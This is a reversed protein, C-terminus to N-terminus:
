EGQLTRGDACKIEYAYPFESVVELLGELTLPDLPTRWGFCHRGTHSYFIWNQLLGPFHAMIWRGADRKEKADAVTKTYEAELQEKAAAIRKKDRASTGHLQAEKYLPLLHASEADTLPARKTNFSADVPLMRLLALDDRKLYESGLCHPCFVYGNQAPEHAGCYGCTHTNRRIERMDETIDLYHGRKITKRMGQPMYDEAWDFVRYGQESVDPIPATNWQNEFLHATELTVERGGEAWPLYHSGGGHSHMWHGRGPTASLRARLEAYARADEPNAVDFSYAHITTKM